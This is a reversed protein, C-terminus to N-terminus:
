RRLEVVDVDDCAGLLGVTGAAKGLALAHQDGSPQRLVAPLGLGAHRPALVGDDAAGDLRQGGGIGGGWGAM